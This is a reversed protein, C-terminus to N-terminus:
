YGVLVGTATSATVQRVAINHWVGATLAALTVTSSDEACLVTVDGSTGVYLRRPFTGNLKALDGAGPTVSRVQTVAYLTEFTPSPM